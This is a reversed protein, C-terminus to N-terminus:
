ERTIQVSFKGFEGSDICFGNEAQETKGVFYEEALVRLADAVAQEEVLTKDQEYKMNNKRRIIEEDRLSVLIIDGILSVQM